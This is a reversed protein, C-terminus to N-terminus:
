YVYKLLYKSDETIFKMAKGSTSAFTPDLLRWTTGDFEIIGNLWGTEPTYVSIWAHYTDEMYGIELRTPIQQSRLMTAMIAAYDFCIGTQLQFIEDVDPLYGSAVTEAKDYDYKYNTIVYNYVATVVDLDGNASVALDAAMAVPLSSENFNVYQNPHLFPGFEDNQTVDVDQSFAMAYKNTDIDTSEFVSISYIGDGSTLPFVEYGGHLNYTYVTQDPGKIQAKVKSNTGTYNMMVYGDSSNSSDLTVVDCSYVQVGSAVPSLVVPTNDRTGKEASQVAAAGSSSAKPNSSATPTLEMSDGAGCGCLFLIFSLLVIPFWYIKSQRM